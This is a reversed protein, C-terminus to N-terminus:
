DPDAWSLATVASGFPSVQATPALVVTLLVVDRM